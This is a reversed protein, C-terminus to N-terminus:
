RRYYHLIVELQVQLFIDWTAMLQQRTAKKVIKFQSLFRFTTKSALSFTGIHWLNTININIFHVEGTRNHQILKETGYM